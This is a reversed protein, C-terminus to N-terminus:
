VKGSNRTSPQPSLPVQRLRPLFRLILPSVPWWLYGVSVLALLCKSSGAPSCGIGCPLLLILLDGSRNIPCPPSLLTHVIVCATDGQILLPTYHSEASFLKMIATHNLGKALMRPFIIRETHKAGRPLFYISNSSTLYAVRSHIPCLFSDNRNFALGVTKHFSVHCFTYLQLIQFSSM